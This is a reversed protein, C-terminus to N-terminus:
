RAVTTPLPGLPSEAPATRLSQWNGTSDCWIVDKKGEYTVILTTGSPFEQGGYFCSPPVCTTPTCPM